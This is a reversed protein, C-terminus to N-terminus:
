AEAGPGNIDPLKRPEGGRLEEFHEWFVRAHKRILWVRALARLLRSM